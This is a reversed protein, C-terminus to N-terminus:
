MYELSKLEGIFDPLKTLSNFRMDSFNLFFFFFFFIFIIFLNNVIIYM